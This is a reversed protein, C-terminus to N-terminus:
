SRGDKKDAKKTLNSKGDMEKAAKIVIYLGLAFGAALGALMFAPRTHFRGDLWYGAAFGAGQAVAFELGLTSIAIHDKGSIPGLAM